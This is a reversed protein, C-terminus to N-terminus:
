GGLGNGPGFRLKLLPYTFLVTFASEMPHLPAPVPGISLSVPLFCIM